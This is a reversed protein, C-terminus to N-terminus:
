WDWHFLDNEYTVGLRLRIAVAVPVSSGVPRQGLMADVCQFLQASPQGLLVEIPDEAGRQFTSPRSCEREGIVYLDDVVEDFDIKPDPFAAAQLLDPRLMAFLELLRYRIPVDGHAPGALAEILGPPPGEVGHVPQGVAQPVVFSDCHDGM